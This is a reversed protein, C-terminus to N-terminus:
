ELATRLGINSSSDKYKTKSVTPILVLFLHVRELLKMIIEEGFEHGGLLKQPLQM